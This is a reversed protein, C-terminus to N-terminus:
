ERVDYFPFEVFYTYRISFARCGSEESMPSIVRVVPGAAMCRAVGNSPYESDQICGFYKNKISRTKVTGGSAGHGRSATSPRPM